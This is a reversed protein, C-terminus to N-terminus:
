DNGYLFEEEVYGSKVLYEDDADALESEVGTETYYQLLQTDYAYIESEVGMILKEQESLQNQSYIFWGGALMLILVAAAAYKMMRSSLQIVKPKSPHTKEMVDARMKDFYGEPVGFPNQKLHKNHEFDRIM